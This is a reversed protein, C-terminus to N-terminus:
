NGFAPFYNGFIKRWEDVASEIYGTNAYSEAKVARDYATEFRNVAEDVTKCNRLPNIHGGYEVPDNVKYKIFERGKEFFYRVGSPFDSITVNNFVEIARLELYFSVFANGINKNWGKIMKAVPVLDYDHNSNATSMLSVHTKPNTEIWIQDVSNPILYGGGSRNFAPVVDVVFDTFTITVAQGNRSIKPTQTYTKLLANRVRDLLNAQGNVSYYGPDLVIFIDIDAEVLPAIMTSRAYSGTLFSDLVIMEKAIVDRVNQQRTSATSRQLDTIELNEKLKQFSSTITIAM